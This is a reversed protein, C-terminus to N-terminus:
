FPPIGYYALVERAIDFFVPAATEAGYISTTPQNIIVIMAFKPDDAPAFGIFSAITKNADYHGAIPIQATGTKGAIRYGKPKAWKAEGSDVANVLIETMMKATASNIPTSLVKPNISITRRDATEIKSVIHPEMRKGDNAISAFASLLGIPTVSIGQGFSATALDIPYWNQEPKVPTSVEGQSDIGTLDSIGFKHFYEIMKSLGLSKAVFTMGINDSYKIVEIMNVDKHYENNWTRIEYKGIKVPKDCINCRTEPKVVKSDFGASMVLTKFTSGPEYVNSIFPNRYLDDSFKQYERPDYSPFSAMALINGTKPDIIGIMGSVAGYKEIGKKLKDEVLFQINRDINLILSRGDVTGSYDDMKSLIPKGLADHVVTAIGTKGKLQRDYYGEIGFYGKDEGLDNKGVFGILQAAMSAEPYFRSYEQKLGVGPLNLKEIKQKTENDVKSKIGVWSLDLSLLASISAKDLDLLSSLERTVSIKDKVEKPNAFVLYSLKNTAIPFNDSTRIEGREPFIKVFSGYQLRGLLSLEEAKVVQWYFLRAIVVFFLFCLFFLVFRLRFTM